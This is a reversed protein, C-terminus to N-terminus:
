KQRGDAPTPRSKVIAGVVAAALGALALAISSHLAAAIAPQLVETALGTAMDVVADPAFPPITPRVLCASTWDAIPAASLALATSVAGALVCPIGCWLLRSRLSRAACLATLLLLAAPALPSWWAMWEFWLIRAKADALKEVAEDAPRHGSAVTFLDLTEPVEEIVQDMITRFGRRVQLMMEPPPCCDVPIGGTAQLQAATCPPKTQLIRVYTAETEPAALRRKLEDLEITVAPVSAGSHLWGFFQDLSKETQRQVYSPPVVAGLLTEKDAPALQFFASVPSDETADNRIARMWRDYTEARTALDAALAPFQDYFHERILAEKYIQPQLLRSGAAHVFLIPVTCVVFALAFVAALIRVLIRPM